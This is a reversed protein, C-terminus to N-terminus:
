PSPARAQRHVGAGALAASCCSCEHSASVVALLACADIVGDAGSAVPRLGHEHLLASLASPKVGPSRELVLAALGSVHASAFSSGSVFGWSAHPTTTLVDDGPALIASGNPNSSGASAVAIVGPHMAPFSEDPHSPDVSSVVTVGQEIAKDILRELLRDTPGALSLNLVQAQHAIAYQLAKALTFSSCIAVADADAGQWCARLPMLKVAPAVGVIGVGNDAKAAIIGAVATGHMEPAYPTEDVFNRAEVLQGQLDPHTLEVGTDIQAIKVNRGTAMRHLDDLRLERASKQLAYYPDSHGLARFLQVPQASEVRKDGALRSAVEAVPQGTEVEALFCRVGIAPMPWDGVLRLRYERALAQAIRRQSAPASGAGYTPFPASGPHYHAVPSEKLMVLIQRETAIPRAPAPAGSDVSAVSDLIACGACSAFAVALLLAACIQM